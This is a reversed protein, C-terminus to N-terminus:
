TICYVRYTDFNSTPIKPMKKQKMQFTLMDKPLCGSGFLRFGVFTYRQMAKPANKTGKFSGNHHKKRWTQPTPLPPYRQWSSHLLKAKLSSGPGLKKLTWFLHCVASPVQAIINTSPNPPTSPHVRYFLSANWNHPNQQFVWRGNSAM